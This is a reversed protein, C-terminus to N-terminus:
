TSFNSFIYALYFMTRSLCIISDRWIVSCFMTSYCKLEYFDKLVFANYNDKRMVISIRIECM